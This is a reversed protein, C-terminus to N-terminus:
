TSAPPAPENLIALIDKRLEILQQAEVFEQRTRPRHLPVDLVRRLGNPAHAFVATRDACYLAEDVDHTVLVTTTTTAEVLSVLEDQLHARTIADLSGFPEDMLLVDPAGVLARALAVRQQMGGSLQYPLYDAFASLRTLALYHDVRERREAKDVKQAALGIEVNRRVTRWPLLGTEQFVFGINEPTGDVVDGRITITGEYPELGAMMKLLTTKGCGSPGVLAMFEGSRVELSVHDLVRLYGNTKAIPFSKSVDDVGIGAGAAGARSPPPQTVTAASETL